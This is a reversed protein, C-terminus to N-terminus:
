SSASRAAPVGSGSSGPFCGCGPDGPHGAVLGPQRDHEHGPWRGRQAQCAGRRGSLFRTPLHLQRGRGRHDLRGGALGGTALSAVAASRQSVAAAPRRLRQLHGPHDALNPDLGAMRGGAPKWSQDAACLRRVPRRISVLGPWARRRCLEVRHPQSTPSGRHPRGHHVLHGAAIIGVCCRDGPPRRGPPYPDRPDPGAPCGLGARADPQGGLEVV